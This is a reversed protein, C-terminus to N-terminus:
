VLYRSQSKPTQWDMILSPGSSEQDSKAIHLQGIVKNAVYAM